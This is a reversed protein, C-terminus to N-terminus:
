TADTTEELNPWLYRKRIRMLIYASLEYDLNVIASAEGQALRRRITLVDDDSLGYTEIPKIHTLHNPNCCARDVGVCTRYVTHDPHANPIAYHYMWTSARRPNIGKPLQGYGSDDRDYTYKWCGTRLPVINALIHEFIQDNTMEKGSYQKLHLYPIHRNM